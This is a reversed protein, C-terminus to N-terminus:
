NQTVSAKIEVNEPTAQQQSRERAQALFIVDDCIISTAYKFKSSQPSNKILDYHIRGTVYVRDGTHVSKLVLDQLPPQLICIRHWDTRWKELGLEVTKKNISYPENTALSFMVLRSIIQDSDDKKELVKPEQGVRGILEIKNLCREHSAISTGSRSRNGQEEPKAESGLQSSTIFARSSKFAQQNTSFVLKSISKIM